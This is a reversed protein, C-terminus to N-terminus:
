TKDVTLEVFFATGKGEESEFRIKGNLIDLYRKVINLGLGTGQINVANAARFFRAFLHKQDGEPIGIGEDRICASLAGEDLAMSYYICSGEPSYKIANSILNIFINKLMKKDMVVERELGSFEPVIEQGSKLLSQMDDLIEEALGALLFPTPEVLAKGEELKSLSLFDGLIGTLNTVASRIRRLHKERKEQQNSETYLGILESSSAITTLPTRFEHSAMSVFRSKLENLEKERELSRRLEEENRRLAEVATKREEIERELKLNSQLLKNVVETLKETREEVKQELERNLAIIEKEAQKQESLDHIVGAFITRGELSVHSVGLRFPFLSGDKRRGEVERGIGIIKGIGTQHYNGIYSDHRSHHPEPMLMNVNRGLMEGRTYGFLQVAAKNAMIMSGKDDIIIIGDVATDIVSELTYRSERLEIEAKKNETIDKFLLLLLSENLAPILATTIELYKANGKLTHLALEFQQRGQRGSSQLRASLKGSDQEFKPNSSFPGEDLFAQEGEAEFLRALELNCKLPRQLPLSYVLIGVPMWEFMRAYLELSQAISSESYLLLIHAPQGALWGQRLTYSLSLSEGSQQRGETMGHGGEGEPTLPLKLLPLVETVTRGGLEENRYGFLDTAGQDASLIRGEEGIALVGSIHTNLFSEFDFSRSLLGIIDETSNM